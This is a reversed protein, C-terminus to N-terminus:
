RARTMRIRDWAGRVRRIAAARHGTSLGFVLLLGTSGVALLLIVITLGTTGPRTVLFQLGRALGYTLAFAAAAVVYPTFVTRLGMRFVRVMAWALVITLSLEGLGLALAIGISAYRPTLWIMLGVTVFLAVVRAVAPLRPRNIYSLASHAMQAPAAFLLPLALCAMLVPDYDVKDGSWLALVDRGLALLWAAGIGSVVSILRLSPTLLEEAARMQDHAWARSIEIGSAFSFQQLLQRAFNALTRTLAFTALTGATTQMGAVILTPAHLLAITTVGPVFFWAAHSVLQNTEERTPMTPRLGLAGVRRRLDFILVLWGVVIATLLYVWACALVGGGAVVTVLMGVSQCLTLATSMLIGRAFMRHARYLESLVARPVIVLTAAALLLLVQGADAAALVSINLTSRWDWALFVVLFALLAVASGIGFSFLGISVSRAVKDDQSREAFFLYQNGFYLQMGFDALALWGALALLSIWEEYVPVGWFRLMVGTLVVRDFLTGITAFLQAVFGSAIRGRAGARLAKPPVDETKLPQGPCM